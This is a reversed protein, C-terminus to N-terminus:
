NVLKNFSLIDMRGIYINCSRVRGKVVQEVLFEYVAYVVGKKNEYSLVLEDLLHSRGSLLHQKNVVRELGPSFYIRKTPVSSWHLGMAPKTGTNLYGKSLIGDRKGFTVSNNVVIIPYDLRKLRTKVDHITKLYSVQTDFCPLMISAISDIILLDVKFEEKYLEDLVKILFKIDFCQVLLIRKLDLKDFFPIESNKFLEVLRKPTFNGGSDIYITFGNRKVNTILTMLHLVQSKGSSSPGAFEIIQGPFIGDIVQDLQIIGTSLGQNCALETDATIQDTSTITSTPTPIYNNTTSSDSALM